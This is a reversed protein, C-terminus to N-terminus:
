RRLSLGPTSRLTSRTAATARSIPHAGIVLGATTLQAQGGVVAVTGLEVAGDIFTIIGTADAPLTATFTVANGIKSPNLSSFLGIAPSAKNVLQALPASISEANEANGSFRATIQHTGTALASTSLMAIGNTLPVVGIQTAGDRFVM